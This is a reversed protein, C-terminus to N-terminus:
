GAFSLVCRAQGTRTAPDAAVGEVGAHALAAALGGGASM